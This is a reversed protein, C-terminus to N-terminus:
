NSFLFSLMTVLFTSWCSPADDATGPAILLGPSVANITDTTTESHKTDSVLVGLLTVITCYYVIIKTLLAWVYHTKRKGSFFRRAISLVRYLCFM